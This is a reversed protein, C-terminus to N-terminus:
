TSRAAATASASTPRSSRGPRTPRATSSARPTSSRSADRPRVPGPGHRRRQDHPLGHRRPRRHRLRALRALRVPPLGPQLPSRPGPRPVRVLPRQQPHRPTDKPRAIGQPWIPRNTWVHIEKIPGLVGSRIVEVGRRFGDAATGQNGMQTCGAEERRRPDPPRPGGRDVLDAAEPHLRAQGDADGDVGAPAHTHDPTSVTVADIKDGMEELMKRYDFYKKANPFKAAMKDLTKEDVDCLAVIEGHKGADNTDSDGKGGVGICAFRVRENPADAKKEPEQARGPVQGVLLPGAAGAVASQRLFDRRTARRNM